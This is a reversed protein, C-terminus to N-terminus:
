SLVFVSRHVWIIEKNVFYVWYLFILSIFCQNISISNFFVAFYIHPIKLLWFTFDKFPFDKAHSLIWASKSMGLRFSIVCTLFIRDVFCKVCHSWWKLLIIIGVRQSSCKVPLSAVECIFQQSIVRFFFKCASSGLNSYVSSRSSFFFSSFVTPPLRKILSYRFRSSRLSSERFLCSCARARCTASRLRSSVFFFPTALSRSFSSVPPPTVPTDRENTHRQNTAWARPIVPIRLLNIANAARNILRVILSIALTTRPACPGHTRCLGVNICFEITM